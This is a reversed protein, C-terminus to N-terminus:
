DVSGRDFAHWYSKYAIKWDGGNADEPDARIMFRIFRATAHAQAPTFLSVLNRKFKYDINLAFSTFEGYSRRACRIMAPAMYYRFGIPDLFNFGGLGPEEIWASDDVLQEWSRETDLARAAAEEHSTGFNDVIVSQSWSVGGARDVGKFAARIAAEVAHREAELDAPLM